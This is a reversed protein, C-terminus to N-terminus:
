VFTDTMRIVGSTSLTHEWVEDQPVAWVPGRGVGPMWAGNRYVRGTRMDIRHTGGATAGNVNFVGAPSTVSYAAPASPIEILPHAPFNGRSYVATATGSPVTFTTTEGYKRPDPALFQVQFPAYFTSGRVGSDTAERSITRVTATLTEGQLDVAITFRDGAAGWGRIQHGMRNLEYVSNAVINGDVTIVRAPLKVPVDHEGHSLARVLAERRGAPLAEWGQLGDEKILFGSESPGLTGRLTVGRGRITLGDSM